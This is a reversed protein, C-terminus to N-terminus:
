RVPVTVPALGLRGRVANVVPLDVQLVRTWAADTAALARTAKALAARMGANPAHDANDQANLQSTFSENLERYKGAGKGNADAGVAADIAALLTTTATAVEAPAGKISAGLAGRLADVQRQGTFAVRMQEVLQLMLAHQARLTTISARSRPDNRVTVATTKTSGNATLRLTYVGPLALPGEPSAPTRRPTASIEFSHSLAL